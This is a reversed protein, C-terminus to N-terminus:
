SFNMCRWDSVIRKFKGCVICVGLGSRNVENSPSAEVDLPFFGDPMGNPTDERKGIDVPTWKMGLEEFHIELEELSGNNYPFKGVVMGTSFKYHQVDTFDNVDDWGSGYQSYVRAFAGHDKFCAMYEIYHDTKCEFLKLMNQDDKKFLQRAVFEHQLAIDCALLKEAFDIQDESLSASNINYIHTFSMNEIYQDMGIPRAYCVGVKVNLTEVPISYGLQNGEPISIESHFKDIDFEAPTRVYKEIGSKIWSSCLYFAAYMQVERPFPGQIWWQAKSSRNQMLLMEIYSKEPMGALDAIYRLVDMSLNRLNSGLGLRGHFCMALAERMKQLALEEEKPLKSFEYGSYGNYLEKEKLVNPFRCGSYENFIAHQLDQLGQNTYKFRFVKMCVKSEPQKYTIKVFSFYTKFMAICGYFKQFGGEIYKIDKKHLVRTVNEDDKNPLHIRAYECMDDFTRQLSNEILPKNDEKMNGHVKTEVEIKIFRPEFQRTHLSHFAHLECGKCLIGRKFQVKQMVALKEKIFLQMNTKWVDPMEPFASAM